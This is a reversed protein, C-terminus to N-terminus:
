FAKIRWVDVLIERGDVEKKVQEKVFTIPYVEDSDDLSYDYEAIEKGQRFLVLGSLAQGYEALKHEAKMAEFWPRRREKESGSLLDLVGGIDNNELAFKFDAFLQEPARSQDKDIDSSRTQGPPTSAPTLNQSCGFGLFPLALLMMAGVM